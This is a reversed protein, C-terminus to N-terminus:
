KWFGAGKGSAMPTGTVDTAVSGRLQFRSEAPPPSTQPVVRGRLHKERLQESEGIRGALAPHSRHLYNLQM